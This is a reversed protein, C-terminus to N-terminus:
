ASARSARVRESVSAGGETECSRSLFSLSATAGIRCFSFSSDVIRLSNVRSSAAALRWSCVYLLLMSCSSEFLRSILPHTSARRSTHGLRVSASGTEEGGAPVLVAAALGLEDLALAVELLVVRDDAVGLLADRAQLGLDRLDVLREGVRLGDQAVNLVVQAQADLTARELRELLLDVLEVLVRRPLRVALELAVVVLLTALLGLKLGLHTGEERGL